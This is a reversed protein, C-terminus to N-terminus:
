RTLWMSAYAGITIATATLTGLVIVRKRKRRGEAEAVAAERLRKTMERARRETEAVAADFTLGGAFGRKIIDRLEEATRNEWWTASYPVHAEHAGGTGADALTDSFTM